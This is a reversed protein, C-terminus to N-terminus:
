GNSMVRIVRSTKHLENSFKSQNKIKNTTLLISMGLIISHITFGINKACSFVTSHAGSSENVVECHVIKKTFGALTNKKM